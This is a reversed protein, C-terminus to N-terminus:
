LCNYMYICTLLINWEWDKGITFDHRFQMIIKRGHHAGTCGSWQDFKSAGGAHSGCPSVPSPSTTWRRHAGHLSCCRMRLSSLPLAAHGVNPPWTTESIIMSSLSFERDSIELRWDLGTKRSKAAVRHYILMYVIHFTWWQTAWKRRPCECIEM